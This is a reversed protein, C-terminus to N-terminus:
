MADIQTIADQFYKERQNSTNISLNERVTNVFKNQSSQSTDKVEKFGKKVLHDHCSNLHSFIAPNYKYYDFAVFLEVGKIGAASNIIEIEPATFEDFGNILVFQTEPYLFTFAEDFIIKEKNILSSYIDGTEKFKNKNLSGQYEEFVESIDLAKLMEGGSLNEAEEKLRAPNIGHRKYEEIVNKVRELTGFPIKDKYQSFYKLKVKNFSHSLMLISVEECLLNINGDIEELLKEAFSGITEIKLGSVAKRPSLSILERTLYRIKRRTPVIFLVQGIEESKLKDNIIQDVDVKDIHQKSLIM